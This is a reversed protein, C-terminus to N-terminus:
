FSISDGTSTTRERRSTKVPRREHPIKAFFCGMSTSKCAFEWVCLLSGLAYDERFIDGLFRM